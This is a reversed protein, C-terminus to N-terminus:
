RMELWTDRTRRWQEPHETYLRFENHCISGRDTKNNAEHSCGSQEWEADTADSSLLAQMDDGFANAIATEEILSGPLWDSVSSAKLLARWNTARMADAIAARSAAFMTQTDNCGLLGANCTLKPAVSLGGTKRRLRGWLATQNAPCPTVCQAFARAALLEPRPKRWFKFDYDAHAFARGGGSLRRYTSLKPLSWLWSLDKPLKCLDDSIVEDFPLRLRNILYSRGAEDTNLVLVYGESKPFVARAQCASLSWRNLWPLTVGGAFRAGSMYCTMAITRLM